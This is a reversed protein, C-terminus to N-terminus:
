NFNVVELIILPTNCFEISLIVSCYCSCRYTFDDLLKLPVVSPQSPLSNKVSGPCKNLIKEVKHKVIWLYGQLLVIHTIPGMSDALRWENIVFAVCVAQTGV